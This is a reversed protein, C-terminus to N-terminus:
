DAHSEKLLGNRIREAALMARQLYFNQMILHNPVFQSDPAGNRVVFPKFEAAKELSHVLYTWEVYLNKELVIEKFDAGATKFIQWSAFAYGKAYYFLDDSTGDFWDASKERQQAENRIIINQLNQNLKQLLFDLDKEQPYFAGDKSFKHLEAAAKRYQANSSPALNFKGKRSMLWVNPPYNLLKGASKIDETQADTNRDFHRIAPIIDRIGAIVGKQFDPMNDLISAPFVFPLNPTWMKDDVERKILYSMCDATEFMPLHKAQPKYETTVDINEAIMSGLLYYFLIFSPLFITLFKWHSMVKLLAKKTKRIKPKVKRYNKRLFAIIDRYKITKLKDRVNQLKRYFEYFRPYKEAFPEASAPSIQQPENKLATQKRQKEKAM